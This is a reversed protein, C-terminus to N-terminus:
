YVQPCRLSQADRYRVSKQRACIPYDVLTLTRKHGKASMESQVACTRKRPCLLCPKTGSDAKATAIPPLASMAQQVAYTQKQGLASMSGKQARTFTAVIQRGLRSPLLHPPPFENAKNCTTCQRPRKTSACLLSVFDGSYSKEPRVACGRSGSHILGKRRLQFLITKAFSLVNGNFIAADVIRAAWEDARSFQHTSLGIHEHDSAGLDGQLCDYARAAM